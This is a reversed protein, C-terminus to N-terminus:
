HNIEKRYDSLWADIRKRSAPSLIDAALDGDLDTVTVLRNLIQGAETLLQGSRRTIGAARLREDVGHASGIAAGVVCGVAACFLGTFLIVAAM